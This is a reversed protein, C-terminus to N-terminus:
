LASKGTLWISNGGDVGVIPRRSWVDKGYAAGTKALRRRGFDSKPADLTAEGPMAGNAM